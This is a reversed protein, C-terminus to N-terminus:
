LSCEYMCVLPQFRTTPLSSLALPPRPAGPKHHFKAAECHYWDDAYAKADPKADKGLQYSLLRLKVALPSRKTIDVVDSPAFHARIEDIIEEVSTM